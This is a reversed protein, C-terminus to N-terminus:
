SYIKISKDIVRRDYLSCDIMVKVVNNCKYKKACDYYIVLLDNSFVRFIDINNNYLTRIYRM